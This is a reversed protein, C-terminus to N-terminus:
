DDAPMVEQRSLLGRYLWRLRMGPQGTECYALGRM